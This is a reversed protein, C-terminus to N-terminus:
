LCLQKIFNNKFNQSENVTVKGGGIQNNYNTVQLNQSQSKQLQSNNGINMNLSLDVKLYHVQPGYNNKNIKNATKIGKQNIKQKSQSKTSQILSTQSSSNKKSSFNPNKLQSNNAFTAQSRLTFMGSQSNLRQLSLTSLSKQLSQYSSKDISTNRRRSKSASKEKQQHVLKVKSQQQKQEISPKFMLKSQEQTQPKYSQKTVRPNNLGKLQGTSRDSALKTTNQLRSNHFTSQQTKQNYFKPQQNISSSASISNFQEALSRNFKNIITSTAQSQLLENNFIVQNMLKSKKSSSAEKTASLQQNVGVVKSGVKPSYPASYINGNNVQKINKRKSFDLLLGEALGNVKTNQNKPTTSPSKKLMSLSEISQYYDHNIKLNQQKMSFLNSASIEQNQYPSKFLLKKTSNNKIINSIIKNNLPQSQMNYIQKGLGLGLGTKKNSISRANNQLKIKSESLPPEDQQQETFNGKSFQSEMQSELQNYTLKSELIKSASQIQTKVKYISRSFGKPSYEDEFSKISQEPLRPFKYEKLTANSFRTKIITKFQNIEKIMRKSHVENFKRGESLFRRKSDNSTFAVLDRKVTLNRKTQTPKQIKRTQFMNLKKISMSKTLNFDVVNLLSEPMYNVQSKMISLPIELSSNSFSVKEIATFQKNNQEM